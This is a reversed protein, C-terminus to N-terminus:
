FSYSMGVGFSYKVDRDVMPSDTIEESLSKAKTSLMLDFDEALNIKLNLGLYPNVGSGARYRDLGSKLSEKESVGYYYDNFDESTWELGVVPRLKLFSIKFPYAYSADAIFGHSTDLVDASLSLKAVGWESSVRYAAGAFMSADRDDLQRMASNDSESADFSQTMYSVTLSLENLEDKYIHAGATLGRLFFYEGEYNVLPVPSISTGDDKYESTSVRVGGGLSIINKESSGEAAAIAPFLLSILVFIFLKKVQTM